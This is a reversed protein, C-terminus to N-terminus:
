CCRNPRTYRAEIQSLFFDDRSIPTLGARKAWALYHDYDREGSAEQLYEWIRLLVKKWGAM